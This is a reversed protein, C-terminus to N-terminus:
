VEYGFTYDGSLWQNLMDLAIEPQDHPVMHGADYVRLFTFKDYGRVQGREKGNNIWPKFELNTFEEQYKHQVTNSVANYGLWHCQFDKDGAYHLVPVGYDLVKAIYKQYPVQRDHTYTFEDSVDESCFQFELDSPIGIAEKTSKLNLYDGVYTMDEYCLDNDECKRRLDYNNLNLEKLPAYTLNCYYNSPICAITNLFTDCIQKFALCKNLYTDMQECQEDTLIPDLGGESCLMKQDYHSQYFKYVAGNGVMMSALEFSREPHDLIEAGIRPVYHGAYSEGTLHFKNNLYQPFKKFFLELFIYVDKAAKTSTDVKEKGGYSYGVGVPQDLFIVSANSNWSYPNYVPQLTANISSSGLEFFLGGNSSCGPGGNLWLIIPDNKPDNRSEFFWYFFHKDVDRVDMYGVYQKVTDINLSEPNTEKIRLQYNEEGEMTLIDFDADNEDMFNFHSDNEVSSQHNYEVRDEKKRGSIFRQAEVVHHKLEDYTLGRLLHKWSDELQQLEANGIDLEHFQDFFEPHEQLIDHQLSFPNQRSPVAIAFSALLLLSLKM